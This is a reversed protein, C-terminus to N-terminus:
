APGLIKFIGPSADAIMTRRIRIVSGAEVDVHGGISFGSRHLVRARVWESEAAEPERPPSSRFFSAIRNAPM